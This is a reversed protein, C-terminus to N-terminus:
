SGGRVSHLYAVEGGVIFVLAGYYIWLLFLAATALNGLPSAYNAIETVYWSFGLKLIEHVLASCTAAIVTTKWPTRVLPLYRYILVFLTWTSTFAVAAGLVQALIFVAPGGLGFIQVGFRVVTAVLVTVGLNVAVLVVGVLVAGVDFAKGHVVNRRAGTEFVTTLTSRLTGSLRTALWVFVLAGAVTLGTRSTLVEGVLVELIRGVDDGLAGQPLSRMFLAVVAETPDDFIASLVFGTLGIGLALFPIIAFLAGWAIAGALLFADDREFKRWFRAVQRHPSV